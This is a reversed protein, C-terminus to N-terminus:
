VRTQKLQSPQGGVRMKTFFRDEVRKGDLVPYPLSEPIQPTSITVDQGQSRELRVDAVGQQLLLNKIEHFKELRHSEGRHQIDQWTVARSSKQARYAGKTQLEELLLTAKGDVTQAMTEDMLIVANKMDLRKNPSMGISDQNNINTQGYVEMGILRQLTKVEGSASHIIDDEHRIKGLPSHGDGGPIFLDPFLIPLNQGGMGLLIKQTGPNNELLSKSFLELTQRLVSTKVEDQKIALTGLLINGENDKWANIHGVYESARTIKCSIGDTSLYEALPYNGGHGGIFDCHRTECSLLFPLGSKYDSTTLPEIKMDHFSVAPLTFSVSKEALQDNLMTVLVDTKVPDIIFTIDTRLDTFTYEGRQLKEPNCYSSISTVDFTQDPPTRTEKASLIDANTITIGNARLTEILHKINTISENNHIIAPHTSSRPDHAPSPSLIRDITM